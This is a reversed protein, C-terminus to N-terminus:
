FEPREDLYNMEKLFRTIVVPKPLAAVQKKNYWVLRHQRLLHNIPPLSKVEVWIIRVRLQQHSLMHKYERVKSNGNLNIFPIKKNLNQKWDGPRLAEVLYFDYLNRWIDGAERKRMLLRNRHGIAVYTFYRKRIKIKKSKVPLLAQMNRARAVCQRSFICDDCNPKQPTCHLAGFEMVAQNFVDPRSRDILQNAKEFFIAKGKQTAINAEMGFMRAIVRFVNGDVAAVAQRFALSAIAAATYSGIGPLQLLQDYKEPFSGGYDKMIKKACAHLHRARSYYGLGQWLRLVKKEPAKALLSLTPFERVFREYYPLGQAVRTQQLIIESLWIKYPDRTKRWPLARRHGAYWSIIKKSFLSPKM